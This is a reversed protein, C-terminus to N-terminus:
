PRHCLVLHGKDGRRHNAYRDRRCFWRRRGLGATPRQGRLQGPLGPIRTGAELDPESFNREPPVGSCAFTEIYLAALKRWDRAILNTHAYRAGEIM